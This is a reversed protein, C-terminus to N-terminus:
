VLGDINKQIIELQEFFQQIDYKNMKVVYEEKKDDQNAGGLEFKVFACPNREDVCYINKFSNEDLKQNEGESFQFKEQIPLTGEQFPVNITWSINNLKNHVAVPKEKIKNVFEGANETWVSQLAEIHTEKLGGLRLQSEVPKFNKDFAGQIALFYLANIINTFSKEDISFFKLFKDKEKDSFLIGIDTTNNLLIRSFIIGIKDAEIKNLVSIAEVLSKNKEM